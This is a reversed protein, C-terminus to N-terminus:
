KGAPRQITRLDSTMSRDLLVSWPFLFYGSQGWGAGWSNRVLAHHPESKLYGVVLVEHGGLVQEGPQPVPMVGTKAVEASEFSEYVTFGIAVTQRNSLAAQIAQQTQPVAKVPKALKYHGADRAAKAPVPGEFTSIDYPWDSEPPVGVKAAAIFADHGFAGTDGQGLSGEIKREQFYIWLRSLLGPDKGDLIGDYQFAGATANATCSGLRAQDFIPPLAHRPDVERLVKLGSTDAPVALVGPLGPRFGYRHISRTPLRPESM